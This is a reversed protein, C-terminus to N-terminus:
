AMSALVTRYDDASMPRANSPNSGNNEALQAVREFGAAPLRLDAFPPIAIASLLARLEGLFHEARAEQNRGADRQPDAISALEALRPDIWPRNYALMPVLLVANVLGHPLDYLGGLSESLCHVSAVDANGFALGALTSARAVAFRAADDGAIDAVARPLFRFLLAIAQEALADSVPNARRCTTAELAHTLADAGTTAVLPAPLTGLLDPDVLAQAPFMAEGKLSIKTGAEPDSLVSVWTVESGTGCTTPLAVLPLPAAPWQRRGVHETARGGNTALMAAAKATDLASGGGLGIVAQVGEARALEAAQESTTTRPNPEVQDFRVTHVKARAFQQEIAAPWRTAALGPDLVLLVRQADLAVLVPGLSKRAGAAIHVRTPMRFGIM